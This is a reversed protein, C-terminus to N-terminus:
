EGNDGSGNGNGGNDGDGGNGGHDAGPPLEPLNRHERVGEPNAYKDKEAESMGIVNVMINLDDQPRDAWKEPLRNSLWFRQAAVSPEAIKHIETVKARHTLKVGTVPNIIDEVKTETYNQYTARRFLDNVVKYDAIEKTRKLAEAFDLHQNQWQYIMSENVGLIKALDKNSAGEMCKGRVFDLKNPMDLIDWQTRRTRYNKKKGKGSRSSGNNKGNGNDQDM